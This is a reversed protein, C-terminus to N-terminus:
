RSGRGDHRAVRTLRRRARVARLVTLLRTVTAAALFAPLWLALAWAAGPATHSLVAWQGATIVGCLILSGTLAKAPRACRRVPRGRHPKAQVTSAWVMAMGLVALAAGAAILLWSTEPNM